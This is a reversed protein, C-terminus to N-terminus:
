KNGIKIIGFNKFNQLQNVIFGISPEIMEFHFKLLIQIYKRTMKTFFQGKNLM